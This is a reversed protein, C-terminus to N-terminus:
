LKRVKSEQGNAKAWALIANRAAALDVPPNVRGAQILDLATLAFEGQEVAGGAESIEESKVDSLDYDAKTRQLYLIRLATAVHGLLHVGANNPAHQVIAHSSGIPPLALGLKNLFVRSALFAAYSARGIACRCEPEGMGNTLPSGRKVGAILERALDLNRRADM